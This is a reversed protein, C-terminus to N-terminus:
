WLESNIGRLMVNDFMAGALLAKLKVNEDELAKLKRTDSVDIGGFTAQWKFFTASSIGHKRCVDADCGRGGTGAPNLHDARGIGEVEEADLEKEPRRVRIM